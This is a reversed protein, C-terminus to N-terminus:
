KHFYLNIYDHIDMIQMKAKLMQAVVIKYEDDDEIILSLGEPIRHITYGAVPSDKDSVLVYRDRETTWLYKWAEIAYNIEEM